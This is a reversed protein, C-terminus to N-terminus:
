SLYQEWHTVTACTMDQQCEWVKLFCRSFLKGLWQQLVSELYFFVAGFSVRAVAGAMLLLLELYGADDAAAGARWRGCSWGDGARALWGRWCCIYEM